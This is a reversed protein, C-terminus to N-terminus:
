EESKGGKIFGGVRRIIGAILGVVEMVPSEIQEQVRREFAVINDTITKISEVSSKLLLLQEDVTDTISRVKTTVADLNELIPLLKTTIESFDKSISTLTEKFKALVIVLYIVLASLSFLLVIQALQLLNEM